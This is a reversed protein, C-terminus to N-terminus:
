GRLAGSTRHAEPPDRKSRSGLCLSPPLTRPHTTHEARATRVTRSKFDQGISLEVPADMSSSSVFNSGFLAHGSRVWALPCQYHAYGALLYSVTTSAPEPAHEEWPARVRERQCPSAPPLANQVSMPRLPLTTGNLAAHSVEITIMMEERGRLEASFHKFGRLTGLKFSERAYADMRKDKKHSMTASLRSASPRESLAPHWVRRQWTPTHAAHPPLWLSLFGPAFFNNGGFL